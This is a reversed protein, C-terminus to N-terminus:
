GIWNACVCGADSFSYRTRSNLNLYDITTVHFGLFVFQKKAMMEDDDGVNIATTTTQTTDKIADTVEVGPPPRLFSARTEPHIGDNWLKDRELSWFAADIAELAPDDFTPGDSRVGLEPDAVVQM